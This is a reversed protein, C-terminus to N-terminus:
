RSVVRAGYTQLRSQQIADQRSMETLAFIVTMFLLVLAVASEILIARFSRDYATEATRQRTVLLGGEEQQMEVLKRRMADLLATEAQFSEGRKGQIASKGAQQLALDIVTRRASHLKELEDLNKQQTHNDRTLDRPLKQIQTVIIQKQVQEEAISTQDGSVLYASWAAQSDLLDSALLNLQSQVELTHEVWRASASVSYITRYASTEAITLVSFGICFLVFVTRQRANSIPFM